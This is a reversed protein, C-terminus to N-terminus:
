PKRVYRQLRKPGVEAGYIVGNADVAIGEAMSTSPPNKDPDPIFYLVKGDKLSGIRIGREWDQRTRAVSKSESDTVYMMDNKDIWIGSARSFQYWEDQWNGEQDAIVIRNNSRDGIVLRGKSDMALAHPQDFQGKGAGFTGFSTLFKGSADFKSIRAHSGAASGHGEAVYIHTRTVLVDNPQFLNGAERGGGAKGLTLLLKGEPSFKFVQHGKPALSDPRARGICSCDVVWVNGDDDVDIGHPFIFMGKGFSRVLKGNEDFKLIPDLDSDACSNQGCREFVWISKGDKDIDVASTSGWTRGAPMQAWGEVTQYPNAGTNVPTVQAALPAAVLTAILSLTRPTM